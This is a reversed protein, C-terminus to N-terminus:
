RGRAALQGVPDIADTGRRTEFHLQPSDVSGSSGVTGISEGQEVTQGKKVLTRDLHAYATVWKDAHRVLVLNGFGKLENDAYVVVGNDAARVPAGKPAKINIGDNHVGGKKNGYTSIVPGEVPWVFKSSARPPTGSSLTNKPPAKAVVPQAKVMAPPPALVMREVPPPPAIPNRDVPQIKLPNQGA